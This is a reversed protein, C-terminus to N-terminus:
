NWGSHWKVCGEMKLIKQLNITPHPPKIVNFTWIKHILALECTTYIREGQVTHHKTIKWKNINTATLLWHRLKNIWKSDCFLLTGIRDTREWKGAPTSLFLCVFIKRLRSNPSGKISFIFLCIGFCVFLGGLFFLLLFLFCFFGCFVFVLGFCFKAMNNSLLLALQIYCNLIM